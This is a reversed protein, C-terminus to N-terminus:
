AACTNSLNDVIYDRVVLTFLNRQLEYWNSIINESRMLELRVFAQLSCFIHTKIAHSDRVMFRCIGCVQKIARHFSEIGWHTDHITVFQSRTIEQLAEADPLHLIYHRSDEKKFVKRFLKIFGFERLHTVLGEDPIELSSVQYYNGPENSVTRNKEVGFLFGLKQNRLFKLNEVGSYWSDGTVLRPKVGWDIVEILMEQFYDNKTKGEKKDYIRYNIPVSNGHIDSYYLTILNLGKISKHYKGSWFYGILEAYKPNSYLKEIVTDDVSLIGGTLNIITKVMEFLDYPDYRERLLFRNVSDHSVNGLIEALRSCGGHKPESLLFLTYHELNCQATSPKSIERITRYRKTSLM